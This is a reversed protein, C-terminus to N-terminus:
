KLSLIEELRKSCEKKLNQVILDRKDYIKKHKRSNCNQFIYGTILPLYVTTDGYAVITDPLMDPDVKGWSVAEGPTAGSLGGTDTRADTIQIFFDHGRESIGAIEQLFPETQLMFNKPSGGGLIFVASKQNNNKVDYIIASTEIVDRMTDLNGTKKFFNLFAINMGISSDGPSSTYVPVGYKYATSLIGNKVGLINERELLYKGLINHFESTSMIKNFDKELLINYLFNDTQLLTQFDMFIDYIRVVKEKKLEIDDIFPTGQYLGYNLSFHIDHYLNAGTSIIWDVFGNEILPVICSQGLGAPTLAGALAIGVTVDEKLIKQKLLLCAEKLRGANYAFFYKEILDTISIDKSIKEPSIKRNECLYKGM